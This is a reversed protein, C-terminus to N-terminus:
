ATVSVTVGELQFFEEVTATITEKGNNVTYDVVNAVGDVNFMLAGMRHYSLNLDDTYAIGTLYSTLVDAIAAQVLEPRYGANLELTASVQVARPKAAAVTVQAGVPRVGEIYERVDQLVQESPIGTSSSLVIVKVTGGGDWCDICKANGVGEIQKAWYVYHNINGGTVPRMTKDKMRMRYLEDDENQKRPEDLDKGLWDLEAGIATDLSFRDPITLIEMHYMKAMEQSVAQANDMCFGGEIRNAPNKFAMKIRNLISDSDFM